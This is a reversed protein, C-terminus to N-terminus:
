LGTRGGPGARPDTEAIMREDRVRAAVLRQDRPGLGVPPNVREADFAGAAIAGAQCPRHAARPMPHHFHIAAVPARAAGSAFGVGDIGLDGRPGHERPLRRGDGLGRVADDLHHALELDCPIGRHLRAGRRHVRQLLDDHVGRGFQSFGEVAEGVVAQERAAGSESRAGDIRGSCGGLVCEPRKGAAPDREGLFHRYVVLVERAERGLCCRGEALAETHAGVGRGLQQDDEAIVGVPNTRFGRERLEAARARDRGRGPHGGAPVAEISAAVSLGVGGEISGDDDAHSEVLGGAVVDGSTGGIAPGFALDDPAEFAEKRSLDVLADHGIVASALLDNLGGLRTDQCMPADTGTSLIERELKLQHNERRFQTLEARATTTLGDTRRGTDRDAQAVWNSISQATPEFEHALDEPTRGARVLAVMQERFEPPYPKRTNPM